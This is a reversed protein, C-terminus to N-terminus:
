KLNVFRAEKINQEIIIPLINFWSICKNLIIADSTIVKAEKELIVDANAVLNVEVKYPYSSLVELIRSKLRGSNSVPSDLYFVVKKVGQEKLQDGILKIALDTKEIMRYTGRLGALDRFTGDMCLILTSASLAVELTIILNFGDILVTEEQLNTIEKEKRSELMEKTATARVLALRQRESLMYHNGVFTSASKIPYNREMLFLLDYQAQKLKMYSSHDFFEKEDELVFGRRVDKMGMRRYTKKEIM